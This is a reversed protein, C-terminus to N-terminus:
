QLVNGAFGDRQVSRPDLAEACHLHRLEAARARKRVAVSMRVISWQTFAIDDAMFPMAGPYLSLTKGAHWDAGPPGFSVPPPRM